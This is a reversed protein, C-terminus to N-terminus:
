SKPETPKSRGAALDLRRLHDLLFERSTAPLQTQKMANLAVDRERAPDLARIALLAAEVLPASDCGVLRELTAVTVPLQHAATLQLAMGVLEGSRPQADQYGSLPAQALVRQVADALYARSYVDEHAAVLRLLAARASAHGDPNDLLSKVAQVLAPDKRQALEALLSLEVAYFNQLQTDASRLGAIVNALFRESHLTDQDFAHLLSNRLGPADLFLAPELGPNDVLQPGNTDVLIEKRFRPNRVYASYAFLYNEDKSLWAALWDPGRVILEEPPTDPGRVNAVAAFHYRGDELRGLYSGVVVQTRPAQLVKAPPPLPPAWLPSSVVALFAGTVLRLLKFQRKFM